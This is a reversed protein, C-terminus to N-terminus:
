QKIRELPVRNKMKMVSDFAKLADEKTEWVSIFRGKHCFIAGPIGSVRRLENELLGAWELPLPVRVNMKDRLSPPIGRLKWHNGTPMIVFSASHHEGGLEFFSEMWSINKDFILCEQYSSMAQNVIERCSRISLYRDRLRRLHGVTFEAAQRFAQEFEEASAERLIPAFNGIVHSFTCVGPSPPEVGNDHADVGMVLSNNFCRYEEEDMFGQEQLYKLVMGASSLSGQYQLQHHDFRKSAPDYVAGVDCIFECQALRSPDRSRVVKDLDVLNFVVLLACATVEDAHFAGDHTGFSRPIANRVMFM